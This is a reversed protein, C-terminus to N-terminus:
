WFLKRCPQAKSAPRDITSSFLLFFFFAGVLCAGNTYTAHIRSRRSIATGVGGGSLTEQPLPHRWSFPANVLQTPSTSWRWYMHLDLISDCQSEINNPPTQTVGAVVVVLRRLSRLSEPVARAHGHPARWSIGRECCKPKQHFAFFWHGQRLYLNLVNINNLQGDHPTCRPNSRHSGSRVEM